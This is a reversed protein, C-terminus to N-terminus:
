TGETLESLYLGWAEERLAESRRRLLRGREGGICM